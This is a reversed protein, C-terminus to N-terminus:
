GSKERTAAGEVMETTGPPSACDTATIVEGTLPKVPLTITVRPDSGLPTVAVGDLRLM